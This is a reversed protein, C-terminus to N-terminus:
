ENEFIQAQKPVILFDSDSMFPLDSYSDGIGFVTDLLGVDMKKKLFNLAVKKQSYPPLIAFNRGNEHLFMGKLLILSLFTSIRDRICM